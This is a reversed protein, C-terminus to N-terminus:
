GRDISDKEHIEMKQRPWESLSSLHHSPMEDVINHMLLNICLNMKSMDKGSNSLNLMNLFVSKQIWQAHFPFM